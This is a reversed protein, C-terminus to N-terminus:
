ILKMGDRRVRCPGMTNASIYGLDGPVSSLSTFLLFLCTLAWNQETDRMQCRSLAKGKEWQEGAQVSRKVPTNPELLYLM